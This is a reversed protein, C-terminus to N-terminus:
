QVPRMVAYPELTTASGNIDVYEYFLCVTDGVTPESSNGRWKYTFSLSKGPTFDWTSGDALTTEIKGAYPFESVTFDSWNDIPDYTNVATVDLVCTGFPGESEVLTGVVQCSKPPIWGHGAPTPAFEPM